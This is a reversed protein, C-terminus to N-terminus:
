NQPTQPPSCGPLGGRPHTRADLLCAYPISVFKPTDCLFTFCLFALHMYRRSNTFFLQSSFFTSFRSSIFASFLCFFHLCSFVSIPEFSVIFLLYIYLYHSCLLFWFLYMVVLRITAYFSLLILYIFLYVVVLLM